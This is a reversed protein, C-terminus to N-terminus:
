RAFGPYQLTQPIVGFHRPPIGQPGPMTQFQVIQQPPMPMMSFSQHAPSVPKNPIAAPGINVKFQQVQQKQQIIQTGQQNVSMSMPHTSQPSGYRWSAQNSPPSAYFATPQQQSFVSTPQVSQILTQPQPQPSPIL